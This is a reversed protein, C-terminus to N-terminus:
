PAIRCVRPTRSGGGRTAVPQAARRCPIAAIGIGLGAVCYVAMLKAWGIRRTNPVTTNPARSVRRCAAARRCTGARSTTFQVIWDPVREVRRDRDADANGGVPEITQLEQGDALEEASTNQVSTM